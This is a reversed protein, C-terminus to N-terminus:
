RTVAADKTRARVKYRRKGQADRWQLSRNSLFSKRQTELQTRFFKLVSPNEIDALAAKWNPYTGAAEGRKRRIAHKTLEPPPYICTCALFETEGEESLAFRYCRIDVKKETLWEAAVLVEYDFDEAFLMIRQEQNLSSSDQELFNELEERADEESKGRSQTFLDIVDDATWKAIM